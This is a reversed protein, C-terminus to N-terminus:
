KCFLKLKEAFERPIQTARGTQKDAAVIVVHGNALLVASEKNFIKFSYKLSKEKLSEPLDEPSRKHFKNPPLKPSKFSESNVEEILKFIHRAKKVLNWLGEEKSLPIKNQKCYDIIADLLTYVVDALEFSLEYTEKWRTLYEVVEGDM